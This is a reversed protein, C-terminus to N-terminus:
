DAQRATETAKKLVDSLLVAKGGQRKSEDAAEMFAYIELTEEATVPAKKTKFFRVIEVVLPRYGDYGGVPGEAKSGQATGSYGKGEKFTGVRGDQWTGTVVIKGDEETRTVSKCGTGMVTFLSECGHIGYWFLDPHSPELSAPSSTQASQIEGLAGNAAAQTNKGYRLSSSSFVPVDAAKAAAFIAVADALSAAIPKDIFTPKGAKLCLQLQELHPRGDNTELLVCDVKELLADISDVIEVGRHKMDATYKPVRSVSSPIDPSGKPYAAVVRCGAVDAAAKPDNLVDTFAGAHSTDLGIIGVRIVSDDALLQTACLTVLLTCILTPKLIPM